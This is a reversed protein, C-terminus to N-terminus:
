NATPVERTQEPSNGLYNCPLLRRSRREVRHQETYTVAAYCPMAYCDVQSRDILRDEEMTRRPQQQQWVAGQGTRQLLCVCCVCPSRVKKVRDALSSEKRTSNM